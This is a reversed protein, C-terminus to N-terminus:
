SRINKRLGEVVLLHHHLILKLRLLAPTFEFNEKEWIPQKDFALSDLKGLWKGYSPPPLVYSSM